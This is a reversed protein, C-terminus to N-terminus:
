NNAKELLYDVKLQLLAVNIKGEGKRAGGNTNTKFYTACYFLNSRRRM